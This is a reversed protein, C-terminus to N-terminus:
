EADDSFDEEQQKLLGENIKVFGKQIADQFDIIVLVSSEFLKQTEKESHAYYDALMEYNFVIHRTAAFRLFIKEEEPVDSAEIEAMLEKYRTLDYAESLTPKEGRPEYQPSEIKATYKEGEGKEGEKEGEPQRM